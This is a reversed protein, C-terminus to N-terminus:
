EEHAQNDPISAVPMQIGDRNKLSPIRLATNEEKIVNDNYM